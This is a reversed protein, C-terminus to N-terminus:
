NREIKEFEDFVYAGVTGDDHRIWWLDGGHGPIYGVITGKVGLKRIDLHEKQILMGRTDGLKKVEVRLGVRVDDLEM